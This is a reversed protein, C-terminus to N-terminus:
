PLRTVRYHGVVAGVRSELMDSFSTTAGEGAIPAENVVTWSDAQLTASFEVNYAVGETSTWEIEVASGEM